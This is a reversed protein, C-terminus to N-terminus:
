KSNLMIVLVSADDTKGSKNPSFRALLRKDDSIWTTRGTEVQISHWPQGNGAVALISNIDAQSLEAKIPDSTNRAFVEMASVDGDFYVAISFHSEADASDRAPTLQGNALRVEFLLQGGMDKASGYRARLDKVTDGINATAIAPFTLLLLTPLVRKVLSFNSV